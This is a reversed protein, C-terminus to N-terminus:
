ALRGFLRAAYALPKSRTMRRPPDCGATEGRNKAAGILLGM